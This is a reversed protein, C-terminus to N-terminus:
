VSISGKALIGGDCILHSGTIYSAQESLLWAVARAPEQPEALRGLPVEMHIVERMRAVEDQSVNDWMLQTETAGPVIANVRIGYKAYDIALCRVLASIGGKAASYAPVGGAAMAIFSTPSSTCVISGGQGAALMSRLGYKCTLFIGSLNTSIVKEWVAYDLEHLMGGGTGIGANAFVGYAPGLREEVQVFANQVEAESRVDCRIGVAQATGSRRAEEAVALAAEHNIDLIGVSAGQEACLLVAARGIGAGGGTVIVTKGQLHQM